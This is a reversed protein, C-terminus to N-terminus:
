YTIAFGANLGQAWFDTRSFLFAPQTAGTNINPSYDIDTPVQRTDINRSIQSAPRVLNSWYLFNYGAHVRLWNFIPWELNVGVEPVVSWGAHTYRGSNTPLALIGGEIPIPFDQERFLTSVGGITIVQYTKGIAVDFTGNVIFPGVAYSSRLGLQGGNFNNRAIFKDQVVTVNGVGFQQGGFNLTLTPSGVIGLAVQDVPQLSSTITFNEALNLYRYGFTVDIAIGGADLEGVLPDAFFVGKVGWLSSTAITKVGGRALNEIAAVYVIQQNRSTPFLSLFGPTNDRNLNVGFVPRAILPAGTVDSSIRSYKTANVGFISVEIPLFWSPAAGFTFRGGSAGPYSIKNDGALLPVTASQRIAGFNNTLDPASSTTVLPGDVNQSKLAFLLYEFGFYLCNFDDRAPPKMFANDLNAPLALPSPMGETPSPAQQQPGGYSPAYPLPEPTPATNGTVPLYQAQAQAALGLCGALVLGTWRTTM